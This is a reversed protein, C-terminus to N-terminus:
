IAAILMLATALRQQGDVVRPKEDEDDDRAVVISGLFYEAAGGVVANQLDDFLDKVHKDKWSYDRQNPPVFLFRTRLAEGIRQMKIDIKSYKKEMYHQV